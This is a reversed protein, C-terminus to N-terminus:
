ILFSYFESWERFFMNLGANWGHEDQGDGTVRLVLSVRTKIHKIIKMRGKGSPTLIPYELGRSPISICVGNM